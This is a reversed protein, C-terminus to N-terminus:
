FRCRLEVDDIKVTSSNAASPEFIFRVEATRAGSPVRGTSLSLRIFMDEPISEQSFRPETRGVFQGASSYYLIEAILVYRSIGGLKANERVYWSLEYIRLADIPVRQTLLARENSVAGLEAAYSGRRSITTRVVNSSSWGPPSAYRNPWSEFNPNVLINDQPCPSPGPGPGPRPPATDRSEFSISIGFDKLRDAVNIGEVVFSGPDVLRGDNRRQDWTVTFVQSEWPNIVVRATAQSFFRSRSWQWVVRGQRNRVIFDFRQGTPYRLTIPSGSVNTKVLTLVVPQGLRYVARNTRLTYRFGRFTRTVSPDGGEAAGATVTTNGTVGGSIGGTSGDPVRLVQGVYLLDPDTITNLQILTEVTTGLRDAIGFLTDSTQVTYTAM